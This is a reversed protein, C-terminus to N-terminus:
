FPSRKGYGNYVSYVQLILLIQWGSIATFLQKSYSVNIKNSPVFACIAIRTVTTTIISNSTNNATTIVIMQKLSFHLYILNIFTNHEETSSTTIWTVSLCSSLLEIWIFGLSTYPTASSMFVWGMMTYEVLCSSKLWCLALCYFIMVIPFYPNIPVGQMFAIIIWIIYYHLVATSYFAIICFQCLM